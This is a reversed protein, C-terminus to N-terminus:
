RPLRKGRVYSTLFGGAACLCVLGGIVIVAIGAESVGHVLHEGSIGTDPDVYREESDPHTVLYLIGAVIAALCAAAGALLWGGRERQWEEGTLRKADPCRALATRGVASHDATLGDVRVREGDAFHLVCTYGTGLHRQLAHRAEGGKVTIATVRDWSWGALRRRGAHVVGHERVEVFEDRGGRLARTAQSVTIIAAVLTLGLLVGIVKRGGASGADGGLLAWLGLWGSAVAIVLAWAANAWRKRNDVRHRGILPGLDTFMDKGDIM